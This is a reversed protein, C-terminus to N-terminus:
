SKNCYSCRYSLCVVLNKLVTRELQNKAAGLYPRDPLSTRGLVNLDRNYAFTRDTKCIDCHMHIASADEAMKSESEYSSAINYNKYLPYSELFESISMM